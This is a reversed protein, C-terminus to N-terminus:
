ILYKGVYLCVRAYSFGCILKFIPTVLINCSNLTNDKHLFVKRMFLSNKSFYSHVSLGGDCTGKYHENQLRDRDEMVKDLALNTENYRTQWEMLCNNKLSIENALNPMLANTKRFVKNLIDACTKLDGHKRLHDGIKGVYGYDDARAIWGHMCSMRYRESWEEKGLHKAEFDAEFSMADEFGNWDQNFELIACGSHGKQGM